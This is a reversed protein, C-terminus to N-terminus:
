NYSLTKIIQEATQVEPDSFYQNLDSYQSFRNSKSNSDYIYASFQDLYKKPNKDPFMVYYGFTKQSGVKLNPKKPDILGIMASIVQSDNSDKTVLRVFDLTGYGPINVPEVKLLHNYPCDAPDCGGGLGSINDSFIITLGKPSKITLNEVPGFGSSDIPTVTEKPTWNSPYKFSAGSKTTFTNWDSIDASTSATGSPCPAFECKPGQRSVYSGDPCQKADMTCAVPASSDPTPSIEAVPAPTSTKGKILYGGIGGVVLLILVALIALLWKSKGGSKKVASTENNETSKYVQSTESSESKVEPKKEEGAPSPEAENLM